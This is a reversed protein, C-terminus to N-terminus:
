DESNGPISSDSKDLDVPRVKDTKRKYVTNISAKLGKSRRLRNHWLSFLDSQSSIRFSNLNNIFSLNFTRIFSVSLRSLVLFDRAASNDLPLLYDPSNSARWKSHRPM